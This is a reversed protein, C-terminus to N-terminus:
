SLRLADNQDFWCAPKESSMLVTLTSVPSITFYHQKWATNIPHVNEQLGGLPSSM